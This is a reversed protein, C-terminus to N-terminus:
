NAGLKFAVIFAVVDDIKTFYYDGEQYDGLRWLRIKWRYAKSHTPPIIIRYDQYDHFESFDFHAPYSEKSFLFLNVNDERTLEWHCNPGLVGGHSAHGSFFKRLKKPLM